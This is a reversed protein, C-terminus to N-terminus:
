SSQEFFGALKEQLQKFAVTVKAGAGIEKELSAIEEDLAAYDRDRKGYGLSEALKLQERADSLLKQALESDEQEITASAIAVLTQANIVPIPLERQAVVLTSLAVQLIEKAGQSDGADLLRAAEKMADPYTALPLNVTTIRVESALNNLLERARPLDGDNLVKKIESRIERVANRDPPALQIVETTFDIPVLALSPERALVMDLKGTARELAAIAERANNKDIAAIAKETEKVADLAETVLQTEAQAIAEEQKQEVGEKLNEQPLNLAQSPQGAKSQELGVPNSQPAITQTTAAWGATPFGITILFLSFIAGVFLTRIKM